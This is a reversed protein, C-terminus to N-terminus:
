SFDISPLDPCDTQPIIRVDPQVRDFQCSCSLWRRSIHSASRTKRKAFSGTKTEGAPCPQQEAYPHLISIDTTRNQDQAGNAKGAWNKRTRAREGILL